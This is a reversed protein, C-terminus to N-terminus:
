GLGGSGFVVGGGGWWVEGGGLWSVAVGPGLDGLTLVSFLYNNLPPPIM